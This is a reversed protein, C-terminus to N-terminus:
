KYNANDLIIIKRNVAAVSTFYYINYVGEKNGIEGNIVVDDDSIYGPELFTMDSTLVVVSSGLLTIIDDDNSIVKSEYDSCSLYPKFDKGNYIVGSTLACNSPLTVNLKSVDFYVESDVVINNSSVYDDASKVLAKEYDNYINYSVDSGGKKSLIIFLVIGILVVLIIILINFVNHNRIKKTNDVEEYDDYYEYM